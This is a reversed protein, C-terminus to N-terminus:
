KEYESVLNATQFFIKIPKTMPYRNLGISRMGSKMGTIPYRSSKINTGIPM